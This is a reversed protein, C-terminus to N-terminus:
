ESDGLTPSIYKAKYASLFEQTLESSSAAWYARGVELRLWLKATHSRRFCYDTPDLKAVIDFEDIPGSGDGRFGNQHRLSMNQIALEKPFKESKIERWQEPSQLSYFRYRCKSFDTERDFVILFVGDANKQLVLPMYLDRWSYEDGDIAFQIEHSIMEGGFGFVHGGYYPKRKLTHAVSISRGDILKVDRDWEKTDVALSCSLYIVFPVALIVASVKVVRRIGSTTTPPTDHKDIM